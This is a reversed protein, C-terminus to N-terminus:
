NGHLFLKRFTEMFWLRVAEASMQEIKVNAPSGYQPSYDYNMLEIGERVLMQNDAEHVCPPLVAPLGLVDFIVAQVRTEAERYGAMEDLYKIPRPMDGVYAESLDHAFKQKRHLQRNAGFCQACEITAILCSHQGVSYPYRTAGGFRNIQSLNHCADVINFDSPQFNWVDVMRGSVTRL